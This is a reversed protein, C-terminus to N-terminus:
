HLSGQNQLFCLYFDAATGPHARERESDEVLAAQIGFEQLKSKYM